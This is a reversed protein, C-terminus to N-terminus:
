VNKERWARWKSNAERKEGITTGGIGPWRIATPEIRVIHLEKKRRVIKATM